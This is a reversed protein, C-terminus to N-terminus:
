LIVCKFIEGMQIPELLRDLAKKLTVRDTIRSRKALELIGYSLLFDRQSMVPYGPFLFSFDVEHTIDAEGINQFIDSFKHSRLAQITSRRVGFAHGYDIVLVGGGCRTIREIMSAAVERGKFNKEIIDGHSFMGTFREETKEPTVHFDATIKNEFFEEDLFIFQDIPLADFFENALILIKSEPIENISECWCIKRSHAILRGRQLKRLLPSIEVMYVRVASYFDDSCHIADLIDLMMIGTGPGFEAIIIETPKGLQGWRHLLWIAITKGFLSTVEPATIYDGEKGIPNKTMYYGKEPHYMAMEIFKSFSIPGSKKIVDQIYSRM